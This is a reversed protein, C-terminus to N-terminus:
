RRQTLFDFFKFTRQFDFFNLTNRRRKGLRLRKGLSFWWWCGPSHREKQSSPYLRFQHYHHLSTYIFYKWVQPSLGPRRSARYNLALWEEEGHKLTRWLISSISVSWIYPHQSSQLLILLAGLIIRSLYYTNHLQWNAAAAAADREKLEGSAEIIAM